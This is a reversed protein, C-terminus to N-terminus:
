HPRRYRLFLTGDATVGVHELHLDRTFTPMGESVNLLQHEIPAHLRPEITLHFVDILDEAFMEAFARPGGELDVRKFGHFRLTELVTRMGGDGCDIIEAGAALLAQKQSALAPDAFTAHPVLLLPTSTAETFFRAAPNLSLSRTLVAIQPLVDQGINLRDQRQDESLIVGGYNEERVTGAGVLIVDSWARVAHFFVSDTANGMAQTNGGLAAAGNLTAIAVARVEATAPGPLPGLLEEPPLTEPRPLRNM